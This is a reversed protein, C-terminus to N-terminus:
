PIRVLFDGLRHGRETEVRCVLRQPVRDIQGGLASEVRKAFGDGADLGVHDPKAQGHVALEHRQHDLNSVVPFLSRPCLRDTTINM